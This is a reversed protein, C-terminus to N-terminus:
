HMRIDVHVQRFTSIGRVSRGADVSKCAAAPLNRDSVLYGKAHAHGNVRIYGNANAHGNAMYRDEHLSDTIAGERARLVEKAAADEETFGDAPRRILFRETCRILHQRSDEGDRFPWM